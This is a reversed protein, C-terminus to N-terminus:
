PLVLTEQAPTCNNCVVAANNSLILAVTANGNVQTQQQPWQITDYAEVPTISKLGTIKM